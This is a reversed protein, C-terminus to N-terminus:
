LSGVTQHKKSTDWNTLIGEWEKLILVHVDSIQLFHIV